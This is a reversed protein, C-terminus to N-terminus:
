LRAPKRRRSRRIQLQRLQSRQRLQPPRRPRSLRPPRSRRTARSLRLHPRQRSRLPRHPKTPTVPTNTPILTLTATAQQTAPQTAPQTAQQTPVPTFTQTSTPTVGQVTAVVVTMDASAINNTENSEVVQNASDAIITVHQPGQKSFIANITLEVSSQKVLIINTTGVFRTGDPLIVAIQFVPADAQGVNAVTITFPVSALNQVPDLIVNTSPITVKTITLDPLLPTPTLTPTLTITPTVGAVTPAITNTPAPKALATQTAYIATSSLDGASPQHQTPPRYPTNTLTPLVIVPITTTPTPRPFTPLPTFTPPIILPPVGPQPTPSAPIPPYVVTSCNGQRTVYFSSVWGVAGQIDIQYWSGDATMGIVPADTGVALNSISDYNIGPGTRVNLGDTNVRVRCTPDVTPSATLFAPSGAPNTVQAATDRVNLTIHQPNGRTDGRFAVVEIVHQGISNPTWSLISDMAPTGNAAPSAATDAILNDVRMEIRTVGVRDTAHVYVQVETNLVVDTNDQPSRIQVEPVDSQAVQTQAATGGPTVTANQQGGGLSCALAALAIFLGPIILRRRRVLDHQPM